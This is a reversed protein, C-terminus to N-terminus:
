ELDALHQKVNALKVVVDDIYVEISKGILDHCIINMVKQYTARANKLEFPMVVWEFIGISRPCHFSIKDIDEEVLYIQNYGLYSDILTLIGNNTAANLLMDVILMVYEDKPTAFILNRFGICIRVQGNKKIVPIINSLWDVYRAIRIFGVRLM